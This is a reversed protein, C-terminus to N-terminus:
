LWWLAGKPPEERRLERERYTRIPLQAISGSILRVSAYVASVRMASTASVPEGTGAREYGFIESMAGSYSSSSYWTSANVGASRGRLAAIADRLLGM